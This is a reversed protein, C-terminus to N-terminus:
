EESAPHQLVIDVVKDTNVLRTIPLHTCCPPLIPEGTEFGTAGVIIPSDTRDPTAMARRQDSEKAGGVPVEKTSVGLLDRSAKTQHEIM